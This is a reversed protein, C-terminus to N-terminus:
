GKLSPVSQGNLIADRNAELFEAPMMALFHIRESHDFTIGLVGHRGNTIADSLEIALEAVVALREDATWETSPNTKM